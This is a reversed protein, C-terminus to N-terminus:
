STRLQAIHEKCRAHASIAHCHEVQERMSEEFSQQEQSCATHDVGHMVLLVHPIVACQAFLDRNGEPCHHRARERNCPYADIMQACAKSAEIRFVRDKLCSKSAASADRGHSEPCAHCRSQQGAEVAPTQHEEGEPSARAPNLALMDLVRNVLRRFLRAIICGAPIMRM